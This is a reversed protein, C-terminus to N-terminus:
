IKKFEIKCSMRWIMNFNPEAERYKFCIYDDIAFDATNSETKVGTEGAGYNITLADLTLDTLVNLGVSSIKSRRVTFLTPNISPNTIVEVRFESVTAKSRMAMRNEIESIRNGTSWLFQGQIRNELGWSQFLTIETEEKLVGLINKGDLDTM